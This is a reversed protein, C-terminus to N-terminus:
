QLQTVGAGAMSKNKTGIGHTFYGNTALAPLSIGVLLIFLMLQSFRRM